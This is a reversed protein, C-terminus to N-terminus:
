RGASVLKTDARRSGCKLSLIGISLLSAWKLLAFWGQQTTTASSWGLRGPMMSSRRRTAAAVVFDTMHVPFTYQCNGMVVAEQVTNFVQNAVQSASIGPPFTAEGAAWCRSSVVDFDKVASLRTASPTVERVMPAPLADDDFTITAMKFQAEMDNGDLTVFPCARTIVGLSALSMELARVIMRIHLGTGFGAVM